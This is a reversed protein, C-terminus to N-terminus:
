IGCVGECENIFLNEQGLDELNRFDVERLPRLSRHLFQRNRLPVAARAGGHRMVEDVHCADEFEEPSNLKMSRWLSDNHFPCGICSSKPPQPYGHKRMWALCDARNMRREILPWRSVMYRVRSPKMRYIEDLSIGIWTEVPNTRTAGMERCARQIPRIKYDATCQRVCIGGNETFSPLKVFRKTEGTAGALADARLNGATVRVVPFPLQTELWDLWTYVARPEWGTDAFLALAPTEIEGRAAMLALTSSQVGAGLSLVANM